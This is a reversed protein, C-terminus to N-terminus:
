SPITFRFTSGSGPASEVWIRGGHREVIKKCIALGIGTGPYEGRAHLRQFVLFIREAYQPDIGIGNDRVSFVYEGPHQIVGVHVKPPDEGRFKLANGILNQFLQLLQRDEGMLTPLHDFTIAAGSDKIRLDLNQLSNKLVKNLDTPEFEHGRTGVRSYSLLDNILDQMRTAADVIFDMFENADNDLKDRYRRALLQTYSAVIRLPEQLDHSAVYAFQELEANSRELEQAHRKLSLETRKRESIDRVVAIVLMGDETKLPSISIEAPFESGDRRLATLEIGSGMPRTNPNLLYNDRHHVHAERFRGPILREIPQGILEEPRYGFNTETMGNALTIRGSHDVVIIADPAAELLQRFKGNTDSTEPSLAEGETRSVPIRSM